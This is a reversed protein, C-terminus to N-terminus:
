EISGDTKFDAPQKLFEKIKAVREDVRKTYLEYIEYGPKLNGLLVDDGLAEGYKTNLADIDKQTFFLHSYDLLELYTQLLKRSVENNLPQHTYHGEELLRGVSVCIQEADSKAQLPQPAATGFFILAPVALLLGLRSKMSFLPKAHECFEARFALCSPLISMYSNLCGLHIFM